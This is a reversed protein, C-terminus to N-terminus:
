PADQFDAALQMLIDRIAIPPLSRSRRNIIETAARRGEANFELVLSILRPLLTPPLRDAEALFAPLVSPDGIGALARLAVLKLDLSEGDLAALLAPVARPSRMVGLADMARGRRHRNSSRLAAIDKEVLGLRDAAQKLTEFPPGALHRMSDIMVEQVIDLDGWRRPRLTAVVADLPEEMLVQEIAPRYLAARGARYHLRARHYARFALMYGTLLIVAGLLFLSSLVVFRLSFRGETIAWVVHLVHEM